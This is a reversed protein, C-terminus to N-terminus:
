NHMYIQALTCLYTGQFGDLDIDGINAVSAGFRANTCDLSRCESEKMKRSEIVIPKTDATIGKLIILDTIAYM